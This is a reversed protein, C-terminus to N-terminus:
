YIIGQCYNFFLSIPLYWFHSNCYKVIKVCLVFIVETFVIPFGFLQFSVIPDLSDRLAREEGAHHGASRAAWQPPHATIRIDRAFRSGDFRISVSAGAPSRSMRGM